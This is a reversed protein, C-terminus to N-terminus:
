CCIMETKFNWFLCVKFITNFQTFFIYVSVFLLYKLVFHSGKDDSAQQQQSSRRTSHRSIPKATRQQHQRLKEADEEEESSEERESDSEFGDETETIEM